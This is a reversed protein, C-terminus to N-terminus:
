IAVCGSYAQIYNKSQGFYHICHQFLYIFQMLKRWILVSVFGLWSGLYASVSRPLTVLTKVPRVANFYWLFFAVAMVEAQLFTNHLCSGANGLAWMYVPQIGCEKSLFRFAANTRERFGSGRSIRFCHLSVPCSLSHCCIWSRYKNRCSRHCARLLIGKRSM